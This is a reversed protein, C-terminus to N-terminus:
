LVGDGLQSMGGAYVGPFDANVESVIYMEYNLYWKQIHYTKLSNLIALWNPTAIIIKQTHWNNKPKPKPKPQQPPMQYSFVDNTSSFSCM